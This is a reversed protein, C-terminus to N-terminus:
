VARSCMRRVDEGDVTRMELLATAVREVQRWVGPSELLTRAARSAHDLLLAAERQDGGTERLAIAGAADRDGGSLGCHGLLTAMEGAMLVRLELHVPLQRSPQAGDSRPTVWVASVPNISAQRVETGYRCFLVAHAAEHIALTRPGRPPKRIAPDRLRYRYRLMQRASHLRVKLASSSIGLTAAAQTYDLGDLYVARVAARAGPPLDQIAERLGHAVDDELDLEAVAGDVMTAALELMPRSQRARLAHQCTHRGIGVLWPRFADASRLQALKLWAVITADQACDEALPREGVLQRCVGLLA